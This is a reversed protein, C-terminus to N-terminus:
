HSGTLLYGPGPIALFYFDNSFIKPDGMHLFAGGGMSWDEVSYHIRLQTLLSDNNKKKKKLDELPSFYSLCSFNQWVREWLYITLRKHPPGAAELTTHDQQTGQISLSM